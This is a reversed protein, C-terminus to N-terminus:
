DRKGMSNLLLVSQPHGEGLLQCSTEYAQQFEDFAEQYRHKSILYQAFFDRSMGLLAVTDEDDNGSFVYLTLILM